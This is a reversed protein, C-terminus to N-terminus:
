SGISCDASLPYEPCTALTTLSVYVNFAEMARTEDPNKGHWSQLAENVVCLLELSSVVRKEAADM